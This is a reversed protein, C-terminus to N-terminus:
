TMNIISKVDGNILIEKVKQYGECHKAYIHPSPPLTAM